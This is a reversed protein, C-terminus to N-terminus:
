GILGGWGWPNGESWRRRWRTAWFGSRPSRALCPQWLPLSSTSRNGPASRNCQHNGMDVPVVTTTRSNHVFEPSPACDDAGHTDPFGTGVWSLEPGQVQNEHIGSGGGSDNTERITAGSQLLDRGDHLTVTWEIRVSMSMDKPFNGLSDMIPLAGCM